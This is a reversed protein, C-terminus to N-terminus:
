IHILSLDSIAEVGTISDTLRIQGSTFGGDIKADVVNIKIFHFGDNNSLSLKVKAGKFSDEGSVSLSNESIPFTFTFPLSFEATENSVEYTRNREVHLCGAISYSLVFMGVENGQRHFTVTIASEGDFDSPSAKFELTATGTAGAEYSKKDVSFDYCACSTRFGDFSFGNECEFSLKYKYKEDANLTGLDVPLQWPLGHRSSPIQMEGISVKTFDSNSVETEQSLAVRQSFMGCTVVCVLSIKVAQLFINTM